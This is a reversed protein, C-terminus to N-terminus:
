IRDSNSRWHHLGSRHDLDVSLEAEGTQGQGTNSVRPHDSTQAAAPGAALAVILALLAPVALRFPKRYAPPPANPRPTVGHRELPQRSPEGRSM